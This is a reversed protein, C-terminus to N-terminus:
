QNNENDKDIKEQLKNMRKQRRKCNYEEKKLDEKVFKEEKVLMLRDFQREFNDPLERYANVVRRMYQIPSGMLNVAITEIFLDTVLIFGSCLFITLYFLPSEHLQVNVLYTKSFSLYNSLWSYGYYLLLSFVTFSLFTFINYLKM